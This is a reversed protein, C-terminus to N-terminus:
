HNTQHENRKKKGKVKEPTSQKEIEAKAAEVAQAVFTIEHLEILGAKQARAALTLLTNLYEKIM